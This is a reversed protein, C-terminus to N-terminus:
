PSCAPLVKLMEADHGTLLHVGRGDPPSTVPHSAAYAHLAALTKGAADSDADLLRGMWGKHAPETIGAKLWAADGVFLWRNGDASNVFWSVSGPTHGPTPVAVLSGDGFLDYSAPFGDYPPGDLKYPQIRDRIRDIEHQPTVRMWLVHATDAFSVDAPQILIKAAPLDTAGGIHDFHAHTVLAYRVSDPTVNIQNLLDGLATAQSGDGIQRQLLWPNAGFDKAKEKGIAPDLVIVGYKPHRILVSAFIMESKGSGGGDIATSLDVSYKQHLLVCPSLVSATRPPTPAAEWTAAVIRPGACSALLVLALSAARVVSSVM